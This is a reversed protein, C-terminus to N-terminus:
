MQRAELTPRPNMGPMRPRFDRPPKLGQPISDEILGHWQLSVGVGDCRHSGLAASEELGCLVGVQEQIGEEVVAILATVCQMSECDHGFVDVDQQCGCWLLCDLAAGLTHFAAEGVGHALLEGSFYPLGAEMLMSDAVRFVEVILKGVYSLIGFGTTEAVM